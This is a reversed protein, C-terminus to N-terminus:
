NCYKCLEFGSSKVNDETDPTFYKRNEMKIDYIDCEKKMTALNHAIKKEADGLYGPM